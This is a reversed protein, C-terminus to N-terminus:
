VVAGTADIWRTGTWWIPKNLTTDLYCFNQVPFNQLSETPREETTGQRKADASLGDYQWWEGLMYNENKRTDTNSYSLGSLRIPLGSPRDASVGYRKTTYTVGDSNVWSTGDWWIPVHTNKLILSDGILVKSIPPTEPLESDKIPLGLHNVWKSGAWTVMRGTTNNFLNVVGTDKMKPLHNYVSKAGKYPIYILPTTVLTNAKFVDTSTITVAVKSVSVSSYLRPPLLGIVIAEAVYYFKKSLERTDIITDGEYIDVKVDWTQGRAGKVILPLNSIPEGPVLGRVVEFYVSAGTKDTTLQFHCGSTNIGGGDLYYSNKEFLLHKNFIQIESNADENDNLSADLINIDGVSYTLNSVLPFNVSPEYWQNLINEYMYILKESDLLHPNVVMTDKYKTLSDNYSSGLYNSSFVGDYATTLAQYGATYLGNSGMGTDWIYGNIKVVPCDEFFGHKLYDDAKYYAFPQASGNLIIPSPRYSGAVHKYGAVAFSDGNIYIDTIWSTATDAGVIYFPNALYGNIRTYAIPSSESVLLVAMYNGILISADVDPYIKLVRPTISVNFDLINGWLAVNGQSKNTIKVVPIIKSDETVETFPVRVLFEIGSITIGRQVTYVYNYELMTVIENSYVCGQHKNGENLHNGKVNREPNEAYIDICGNIVIKNKLYYYRDKPFVFQRIGCAFAKNLAVSSDISVEDQIGDVEYSKDVLWAINLITSNCTDGTFNVDNFICSNSGNEIRLRSNSNITGNSISGGEFLLVCNDPIFITNGNLDYDYQIHYITDTKSLMDQTLINVEGVINKRLFVRGLGSFSETSYEKDAFKLLEGGNTTIDEEDPQNTINLTQVNHIGELKVWKTPDTYDALALSQFQYTVWSRDQEAFTIKHGLVRVPSPVDNVATEITHTGGKMGFATVNYGYRLSKNQFDEMQSQDWLQKWNNSNQWTINDIPVATYQETILLDDYTIYVIILGKRRLLTPVTLRTTEPSGTYALFYVNFGALIDRLIAGTAKDKVADLFTLPFINGYGGGQNNKKILQQIDKM